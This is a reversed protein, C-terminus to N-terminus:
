HNACSISLTVSNEAFLLKRQTAVPLMVETQNLVSFTGTLLPLMEKDVEQQTSYRMLASKCPCDSGDPAPSISARLLVPDKNVEMNIINLSFCGEAQNEIVVKSLSSSQVCASIMLAATLINYKRAAM